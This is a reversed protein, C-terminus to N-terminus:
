QVKCKPCNCNNCVKIQGEPGSDYIKRFDEYLSVGCHSPRGCNNCYPGGRASDATM